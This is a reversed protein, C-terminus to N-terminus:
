WIDGKIKRLGLQNLRKIVKLCNNRSRSLGIGEALLAPSVKCKPGYWTKLYKDKDKNWFKNFEVVM